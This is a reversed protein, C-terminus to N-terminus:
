PDFRTDGERWLILRRTHGFTVQSSGWFSWWKAVPKPHPFDFNARWLFSHVPWPCHSVAEMLSQIGTQRKLEELTRTTTGALRLM